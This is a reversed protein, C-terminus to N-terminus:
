PTRRVVPLDLTLIGGPGFQCPRNTLWWSTLYCYLNGGAPRRANPVPIQPLSKHLNLHRMLRTGAPGKLLPHCLLLAFKVKYIKNPRVSTKYHSVGVRRIEHSDPRLCHCSLTVMMIIQIININHCDRCGKGPQKKM